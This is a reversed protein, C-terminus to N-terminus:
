VPVGLVINLGKAYGWVLISVRPTGGFGKQKGKTPKNQYSKFNRTGGALQKRVGPQSDSIYVMGYWVMIM